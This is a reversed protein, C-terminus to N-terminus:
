AHDNRKAATDALRQWAEAMELLRARQPPDNTQQAIRLCDAAYQKYLDRDGTMWLPEAFTQLCYRALFFKTGLQGRFEPGLRRTKTGSHLIGFCVPLVGFLAAPEGPRHGIM